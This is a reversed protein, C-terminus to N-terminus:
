ADEKEAKKQGLAQKAEADAPEALGRAVLYRLDDVSVDVPGKLEKPDLRKGGAVTRRLIKAKMTKGKETEPKPDAPVLAGASKTTLM